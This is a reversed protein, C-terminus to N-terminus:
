LFCKKSSDGVLFPHSWAGKSPPRECRDCRLSFPPEAAASAPSGLPCAPSGSPDQPPGGPWLRGSIAVPRAAVAAMLHRHPRSPRMAVQHCHPLAAMLPSTPRCTANRQDVSVTRSREPEVKLLCGFTDVPDILREPQDVLQCMRTPLSRASSSAARRCRVRPHRVRM